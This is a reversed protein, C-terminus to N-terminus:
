SIKPRSRQYSIASPLHCITSGWDRTDQSGSLAAIKVQRIAMREQEHQM